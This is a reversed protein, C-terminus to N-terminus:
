RALSGDIYQRHAHTRICDTLSLRVITCGRQLAAADLRERLRTEHLARDECLTQWTRQACYSTLEGIAILKLTNECNWLSRWAQAISTMRYTLNASVSIPVGDLTTISGTPLDLGIDTSPYTKVEDIFWWRFHLGPGLERTIRGGRVVMGVQWDYIRAIPWLALLNRIIFDILAQM